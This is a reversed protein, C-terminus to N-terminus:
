VNSRCWPDAIRYVARLLSYFIDGIVYKNGLKKISSPATPQKAKTNWLVRRVGYVVRRICRVVHKVPGMELENRRLIAADGFKDNDCNAHKQKQVSEFNNYITPISYRCRRTPVICTTRPRIDFFARSNRLGIDRNDLALFNRHDDRLVQVASNVADADRRIRSNFSRLNRQISAM